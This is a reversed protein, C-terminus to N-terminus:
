NKSLYPFILTGIGTPTIETAVHGQLLQGYRHLKKIAKQYNTGPADIKMIAEVKKMTPRVGNRNILYGLYELEDSCFLLLLKKVCQGENRCKGIQFVGRRLTHFPERCHASKYSSFYFIM